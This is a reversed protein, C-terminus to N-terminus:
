CCSSWKYHVCATLATRPKRVAHRLKIVGATTRFWWAFAQLLVETGRQIWLVASIFGASLYHAGLVICCDNWSAFQPIEFSSGCVSCMTSFGSISNQTSGKGRVSASPALHIFHFVFDWPNFKLMLFDNAQKEAAPDPNKGTYVDMM